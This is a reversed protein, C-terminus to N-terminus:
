REIKNWMQNTLYYNEFDIIQKNHYAANHLTGEYLFGCSKITKVSKMNGKEIIARILDIDVKKKKYCHQFETERNIYLKKSFLADTLASIAEKAYGNYRHKKFIYYEINGFKCKEPEKPAFGIYGIVENSGKKLIIFYLSRCLDLTKHKSKPLRFYSDFENDEVIHKICKRSLEYNMARFILRSSCFDNNINYDGCRGNDEKIKHFALQLFQYEEDAYDTKCLKNEEYEFCNVCEDWLALQVMKDKAAFLLKFCELAEAYIEADEEKKNLPRLDISNIEGNTRETIYETAYTSAKLIMSEYM